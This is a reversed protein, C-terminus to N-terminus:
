VKITFIHMIKGPIGIRIKYYNLILPFMYLYFVQHYGTRAFVRPLKAEFDITLEIEDYPNIPKDLLVRVVTQDFENNDDPQIFEIRNTLEAGDETVMKNINIWGWGKDKDAQSQRHWGKSEKMFTSSENKFANLYLHFQLETIIDKSDNKWNLIETGYLMKEETNLKVDIKYNAIRPSLPIEFMPKQAYIIFTMLMFFLFFRKM